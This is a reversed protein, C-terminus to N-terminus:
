SVVLGRGSMFIRSSRRRGSFLSYDDILQDGAAENLYNEIHDYGSGASVGTYDTGTSLGHSTKWADPIGDPQSHSPYTGAALTPFDSHDAYSGTENIVENMIRQWLTHKSPLTAGANQTLFSFVDAADMTPVQPFNFRTLSQFPTVDYSGYLQIVNADGAYRGTLHNINIGFGDVPVGGTAPGINNAAYVKTHPRVWVCGNEGTGSGAGRKWHNGILNVEMAPNSGAAALWNNYNTVNNHDPRLSTYNNGLWNYILNNVFDLRLAPYGFGLAGSCRPQVEPVRAKCGTIVNRYFTITHMFGEYAANALLPGYAPAGAPDGTIKGEAILGNQITVDYWKAYCGGMEDTAWGVSCHDAIVNYVPTTGNWILLAATNEGPGTGPAGRDGIFTQLHRVICDHAKVHVDYNKVLLGGGPAVHGAYTLYPNTIAIISNLAVIGGIRPIVIRPGSATLAARLSGTGSDNLNDVFLVSGGRGGINNEAGFGYATPFAKVTM